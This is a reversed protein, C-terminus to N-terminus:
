KEAGIMKLTRAACLRMEDWQAKNFWKKEKAIKQLTAIAEVSGTEGLAMFFSVKEEYDRKLFDPSLIIETLPKVAGHKAMKALVRSAKGRIKSLSDRLFMRVLDTGNEEFISILKLTEERVKPDEHSVLNGLYKPTSPDAIKELIRLIDSLFLYNPDSLYKTLTRIEDRCLEAIRDCLVRRWKESELGMLLSCLPDVAPKTLLQLYQLIYESDVEGNGQMAKGLLELSPSEGAKVLIRRIASIQKEKLDGLENPDNLTNLIMVAKGVQREELLSKVIREFYSILNEYAEVNEGLHLLIEILNNVLIYLYDSEQEREVRRYIQEMEEPTLACVQAIAQDPSLNLLQRLGRATSADDTEAQGSDESGERFGKYELGKLLDEDTVPIFTEEEDLFEDVITFDIHFFDKEWLLTVLDGENRNIINSKRVIGLFDAVEKFELGKFFRIERIGDRFFFFALNEKLNQSEYVVKDRYVLQYQGVKLCFSDFKNFYRDFEQKLNDLFKSIMSHNPEYLQSIKVAQLFSHILSKASQVEEKLNKEELGDAKDELKKVPKEKM